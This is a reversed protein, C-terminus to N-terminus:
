PVGHKSRVADLEHSKNCNHSESVLKMQPFANKVFDDLDETSKIGLEGSLPNTLQIPRKGTAEHNELFEAISIQEM